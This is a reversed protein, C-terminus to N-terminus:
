FLAGTDCRHQVCVYIHHCVHQSSVAREESREAKVRAPVSLGLPDFVFADASVAIVKLM